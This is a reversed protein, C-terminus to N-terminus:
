MDSESGLERLLYSSVFIGYLYSRYNPYDPDCGGIVFSYAYPPNKKEEKSSANRRQTSDGANNNKVDRLYSTITILDAETANLANHILVSSDMSPTWVFLLVTSCLYLGILAVLIHKM